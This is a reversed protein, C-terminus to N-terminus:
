SSTKKNFFKKYAPKRYLFQLYMGPYMLYDFLLFPTRFHIDDIIATGSVTKEIVHRHHWSKLFFPLKVGEDIFTFAHENRESSTIRGVWHQKFFIFNFQLHIEGGTEKPNDFRLLKVPPFPPNLANFLEDNFHNIVTEFEADLETRIYIRM